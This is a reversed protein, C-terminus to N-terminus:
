WRRRFGRDRREARDHVAARGAQRQGFPRNAFGIQVAAPGALAAVGGLAAFRVFRADQGAHELAFGGARRDPQQDLVHVLARLIVAFM